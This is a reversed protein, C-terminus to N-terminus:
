TVPFKEKDPNATFILIKSLLVSTRTLRHISEANVYTTKECARSLPPHRNKKRIPYIQLMTFIVFIYARISPSHRDIYSLLSSLIIGEPGPTRPAGTVYMRLFM